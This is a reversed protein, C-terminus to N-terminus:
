PEAATEAYVHAHARQRFYRAEGAVEGLLPDVDDDRNGGGHYADGAVLRLFIGDRDQKGADAIRDPITKNLRQRFRPAEKGADAVLLHLSAALTHFQELLHQRLQPAQDREATWAIIHRFFAQHFNARGGTPEVDLDEIPRGATALLQLPKQCVHAALGGVADH